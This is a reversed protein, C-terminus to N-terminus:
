PAKAVEVANKGRRKATYMAEDARRVLAAADSAHQPFSAVGVSASLPLANGRWHIPRERLAALLREASARADAVSRLGDFLVIFEDGGLRAVEDRDRTASKLRAAIQVLMADGADHGYTDNVAKFGDVDVYALALQQGATAAGRLSLDLLELFHRRNILGTLADHRVEYELRGKLQQLADNAQTLSESRQKEAEALRALKAIEFEMTLVQTRRSARERNTNEELAMQLEAHVLAEEFRRQKKRLELLLKHVGNDYAIAGGDVSAIAEAEQLAHDAADLQGTAIPGRGLAVLAGALNNHEEATRAEACAEQLDTMAKGADGGLALLATGRVFRFTSAHLASGNALAVPLWQEAVQLAQAMDGTERLVEALNIAAVTRVQGQPDVTATREIVERYTALAQQHEGMQAYLLGINVLSRAEAIVHGSSRAQAVCRQYYQFALGFQGQRQFAMGLGNTARVLLEADGLREALAVCRELAALAAPWQSLFTHAIGQAFQLRAAAVENGQAAALALGQDGLAIANSPSTGIAAEARACLGALLAAPATNDPALPRAPEARSSLGEHPIPTGM